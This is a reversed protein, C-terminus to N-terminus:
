GDPQDPRADREALLAHRLHALAAMGASDRRTLVSFRERGLDFRDAGLQVVLGSREYHRVAAAPAIALMRTAGVILLMTHLAACEVTVPPASLGAQVFLRLYAAQTRSGDPPVIWRWPVLDAVSLGAVGVLPHSSSAVVQMGGSWLPAVHLQGMPLAQALSEDIWGVVCDLDGKCLASILDRARGERITIRGLNGDHELRALAQALVSVGAVQACGLRLLPPLETAAAEFAHEVSALAIELRQMARVGAVTLRAGRADRDVLGKGVVLELEQLLVTAAPQSVGLRRAAAGLSGHLHILALLRLHRLRLRDIRYRSLAPELADIPPRDDDASAAAATM